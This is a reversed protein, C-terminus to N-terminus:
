IMRLIAQEVQPISIAKITEGQLCIINDRMPYPGTVEPRTSGFLAVMPVQTTSAVHMPATDGTLFLKCFSMLGVLQHLTTKGTLDIVGKANKFYKRALRQEGLTGTLVFRINPNRARLSDYLARYNAFPWTRYSAVNRKWFKLSRRAVKACGMHCGILIEPATLKAGAAVLMEQIGTYHEPLTFLQYERDTALRCDPFAQLVPKFPHERLHLPKPGPTIFCPITLGQRYPESKPDNHLDLALQYRASIQKLEEPSPAVYVENIAPNRKFVEAANATAALLGINAQPCHERVMQVAPTSCISDGVNAGVVILINNM